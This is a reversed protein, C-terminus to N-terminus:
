RIHCTVSLVGPAGCHNGTMKMSATPARFTRFLGTRRAGHVKPTRPAHHVSGDGEVRLPRARATGTPFVTDHHGLLLIRGDGTGRTRAVVHLGVPSPLLDVACGATDAWGAIMTACADLGDLHGTPSDIACLRRLRELHV